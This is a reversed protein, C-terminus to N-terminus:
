VFLASVYTVSDYDLCICSLLPALVKQISIKKEIEHVGKFYIACGFVCNGEITRLSCNKIILFFAQLIFIGNYVGVFNSNEIVAGFFGGEVNKEIICNEFLCNEVSLSLVSYFNHTETLIETWKIKSNKIQLKLASITKSILHSTENGVSFTFDLGAIDCEIIEM